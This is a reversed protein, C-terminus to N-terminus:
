TRELLFASDPLQVQDGLILDPALRTSDRIDM